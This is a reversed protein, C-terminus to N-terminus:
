GAGRRGHAVKALLEVLIAREGASLGKLAQAEGEEILKAARQALARGDSKVHLTQARRDKACRARKILDRRELRDIWIKINPPTMALAAALRAASVDPNAQVLMLITFEISRLDCAAGARREFVDDTVVRAQALQYGLSRHLDGESLRSRPATDRSQANDTSSASDM